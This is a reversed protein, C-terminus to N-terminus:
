CRTVPADRNALPECQSQGCTEGNQFQLMEGTCTSAPRPGITRTAGAFGLAGVAILRASLLGAGPGAADRNTHRSPREANKSVVM